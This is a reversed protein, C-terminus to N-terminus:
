LRIRRPAVESVLKEFQRYTIDIRANKGDYQYRYRHFESPDSNEVPNLGKDRLYRLFPTWLEKTRLCLNEPTSAFDRVIHRRSLGSGSAKWRQQQAKTCQLAFAGLARQCREHESIQAYFTVELSLRNFSKEATDSSYDAQDKIFRQKIFRGIYKRVLLQEQHKTRTAWSEKNKRNLEVVSTCIM